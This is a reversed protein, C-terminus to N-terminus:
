HSRKISKSGEPWWKVIFITIERKITAKYFSIGFGDIKRGSLNVEPLICGEFDTEGEGIARYFEKKTEEENKHNWYEHLLCFSKESNSLAERHCSGNLKEYKCQM